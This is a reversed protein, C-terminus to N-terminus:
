LYNMRTFFSVHAIFTPFTLQTIHMTYVFYEFCSGKLNRDCLDDVSVYEIACLVDHSLQILGVSGFGSQLEFHEAVALDSEPAFDLEDVAVFGVCDVAVFEVDCCKEASDADIVVM